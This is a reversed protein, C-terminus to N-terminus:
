ILNENTCLGRVDIWFDISKYEVPSVSMDEFIIDIIDMSRGGFPFILVFRKLRTELYKWVSKTTNTM